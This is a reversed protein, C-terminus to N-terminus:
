YAFEIVDARTLIGLVKEDKTVVLMQVRPDKLKQVVDALSADPRIEPAPERSLAEAVPLEALDRANWGETLLDLISRETIAGLFCGTPDLVPLQSFTGQLMLDRALAISEDDRVSTVNEVMLSAATAAEGDLELAAQDLRQLATRAFAKGVHVDINHVLTNRVRRLRHLTKKLAFPLRSAEILAELGDENPPVWQSTESLKAELANMGDRFEDDGSEILHQSKDLKRRLRDIDQRVDKVEKILECQSAMQSNTSPGGPVLAEVGLYGEFASSDELSWSAVCRYYTRQQGDSDFLM